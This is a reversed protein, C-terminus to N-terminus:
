EEMSSCLPCDLARNSLTRIEMELLQIKMNQATIRNQLKVVEKTDPKKKAQTATIKQEFIEAAEQSIETGIIRGKWGKLPPWSVGLAKFQSRTWSKRQTRHKMIYERTIIM